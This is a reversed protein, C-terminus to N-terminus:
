GSKLTYTMRGKDGKNKSNVDMAKKGGHFLEALDDEEIDRGLREIDGMEWEQELLQTEM